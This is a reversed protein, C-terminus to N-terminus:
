ILSYTELYTQLIIDKIAKFVFKINETDTACTFHSYLTRKSKKTEGFNQQYQSLIFFKAATADHRPGDYEPFYDEMHSHQIKEELVDTKNLFLIVSTRKFWQCNVIARFLACSEKQRNILELKGNRGKEGAVNEDSDRRIVPFPPLEKAVKPSRGHHLSSFHRQLKKKSPATNQSSQTRVMPRQKQQNNNRGNLSPQKLQTMNNRADQTIEEEPISQDYESLAALFIISTINEFCHIWKRRESKQGGVDVIGFMFKDIKFLYETIGLTPRRSRLVDQLTPLYSASSIRTLNNLYYAASDLLHFENRRLYCQQVGEDKWFLMIGLVRTTDLSSECERPLEISVEGFDKNTELEYPIGLELMATALTKISFNINQYILPIHGALEEHSYGTGHIIRMQKIFTSKGSEAAGLVLLKVQTKAERKAEKLRQEIERSISKSESSESGSFCASLSSMLSPKSNRM